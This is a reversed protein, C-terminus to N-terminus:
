SLYNFIYVMTLFSVFHLFGFYIYITAVLRERKAFGGKCKDQNLLLLFYLNLFINM